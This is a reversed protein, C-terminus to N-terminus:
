TTLHHATLHATHSFYFHSAHSTYSIPPPCRPVLLFSLVVGKMEIMDYQLPLPLQIWHAHGTIDTDELLPEMATSRGGCGRNCGGWRGDGLLPYRQETQVHSITPHAHGHAIMRRM